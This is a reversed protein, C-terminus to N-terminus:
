GRILPLFYLPALLLESYIPRHNSAGVWSLVLLPSLIVEGCKGSLFVM